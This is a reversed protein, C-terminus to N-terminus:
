VLTDRNAGVIVRLRDLAEAWYEQLREADGEDLKGHSVVLRTKGSREYFRVTVRTGGPWDLYLTKLPVTKAVEFKADPLWRELTVPDQWAAWVAPPPVPVTKSLTVTLRKVLPEGRQDQRIGRENEYGVAVMQSWWRSLGMREQLLLAIEGHDMMRGGARDIIKCWEDWPKGTKAKVADDTLTGVRIQQFPKQM